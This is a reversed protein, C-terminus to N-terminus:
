YGRQLDVENLLPEGRSFRDMNDVLQDLVNDGTPAGRLGALHPSVLVRPNTWLPSEAPLPEVAFTDILAGAFGEERLVRDLAEEDVVEGRGINILFADKGLLRLEREGILHKRDGGGPVALVVYDAQRLADDIRDAGWVEDAYEDPRPRTRVGIVRMDFGKARKALAVGIEGYGLVSLTRGAVLPPQITLWEKRQQALVLEPIRKCAALIQAMAFESVYTDHVHRVRTVTLGRDLVERVLVGDVGASQAAVWRIAPHERLLERLHSQKMGTSMVAQLDTVEDAPKGDPGIRVLNLQVGRAQAHGQLMDFFDTSVGIQPTSM